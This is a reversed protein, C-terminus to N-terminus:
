LCKIQISHNTFKDAVKDALQCNFHENIEIQNLKHNLNEEKKIEMERINQFLEKTKGM